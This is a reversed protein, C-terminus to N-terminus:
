APVEYFKPKNHISQALRPSISLAEVTNGVEWVYTEDGVQGDDADERPTFRKAAWTYPNVDDPLDVCTVSEYRIFQKM